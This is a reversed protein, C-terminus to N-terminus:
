KFPTLNIALDNGHFTELIQKETYSIQFHKTKFVTKGKDNYLFIIGKHNGIPLNNKAWIINDGEIRLSFNPCIEITQKAAIWKGMFMNDWRDVDKTNNERKFLKLTDFSVLSDFWYKENKKTTIQLSIRSIFIPKYGINAISLPVGFNTGFGTQNAINIIADNRFEPSIEEKTLVETLQKHFEVINTKALSPLEPNIEVLKNAWESRNSSLFDMEIAVHLVKDKNGTLIRPILYQSFNAIVKGPLLFEIIIIYIFSIVSLIIAILTLIDNTNM